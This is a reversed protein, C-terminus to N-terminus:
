ESGEMNDTWQKLAQNFPKAEDNIIYDNQGYMIYKNIEKPKRDLFWKRILKEIRASEECDSIGAEICLINHLTFRGKLEDPIGM